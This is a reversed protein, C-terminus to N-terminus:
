GFANSLRLAEKEDSVLILLPLTRGYQRVYDEWFAYLFAFRAGESLGCVLLPNPKKLRAQEGVAEWVDSYDHEGRIPDTLINM